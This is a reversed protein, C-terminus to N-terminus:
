GDVVSEGESVKTEDKVQLDSPSVLLTARVGINQLFTRMEETFDEHRFLLMRKSIKTWEVPTYFQPLPTDILPAGKEILRQFGDPELVTHTRGAKIFDWDPGRVGDKAKLVNGITPHRYTWLFWYFNALKQALADLYKHCSAEVSLTKYRKQRFAKLNPGSAKSMEAQWHQSLALLRHYDDLEAKDSRTLENEDKKLLELRRARLKQIDTEVAKLETKLELYTRESTLAMVFKTHHESTAPIAFRRRRLAPRPSSSAPLAAVAFRPARRLTPCPSAHPVAVVPRLVPRPSPPAAVAFRATRPLLPRLVANAFRRRRLASARRRRLLLARRCRRLTPVAVAFGPTRLRSPLLRKRKSWRQQGPPPASVRAVLLSVVAQAKLRDE